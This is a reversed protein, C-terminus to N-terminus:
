CCYVVAASLCCVRGVVRWRVVQRHSPLWCHAQTAEPLSCAAALRACLDIQNADAAFAGLVTLVAKATSGQRECGVAAMVVVVVVGVVFSGAGVVAAVAAVFALAVGAERRKSM